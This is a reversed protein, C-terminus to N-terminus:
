RIRAVWERFSKPPLHKLLHSRKINVEIVTRELVVSEVEICGLTRDTRVL